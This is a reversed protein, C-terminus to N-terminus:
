RAIVLKQVVASGQHIARVTYVGSPLTNTSIPVSLSGLPANYQSIHVRNGTIDVIEIQVTTATSVSITAVLFEDTPNPWISMGLAPVAEQQVSTTSRQARGRLILVPNLTDMGVDFLVTDVHNVDEVGRPDYAVTFRYQELPGIAIPLSNALPNGSMTRADVFHRPPTFAGNSYSVVSVANSGLNEITVTHRSAPAAVDVIGYNVSGIVVTRNTAAFTLHALRLSGCELEAIISDSIEVPVSSLATVTLVVEEGPALPLPGSPSISVFSNSNRTRISQVALTKVTSSNRLTITQERPTGLPVWGFEIKSSSPELTPPVYTFVRETVTGNQEIVHLKSSAPISNDIVQFEFLSTRAILDANNTQTFKFNSEDTTFIMAVQGCMSNEYEARGIIKTCQETSSLVLPDACDKRLDIGAPTGYARGQNLGDLSGYSWAMFRVSDEASALFHSGQAIPHRIVSLDTGRVTRVNQSFVERLKKGDFYIDDFDRSRFVINVFCDMGEQTNVVGHSIWRDMSPVTTLFPMGAEVTPHGQADDVDKSGNNRVPPPLVKAYSKGYQGMLIPKTSEWYTATEVSTELRTEGKRLNWKNLLGSGDQRMTKVVTNDELAIVRIVDGRDDDIGIEPNGQGTVRNSTYLFPVTIFKTGAMEVPLMAEHVNNRLFHAPASFSGSIPLISPYRMMAGKTHGSVVAIPKTSVIRTGSLDTSFNKSEAINIKSKILTAQGRDLQMTFSTGKPISKTVFGGETDVTPTYTVFTSDAASIILIQSPRYDINQGSGFHDQYFNMSYYETGWAAIPLHQTMEGNGNWQQLTSVTVPMSSEVLLGTGVPRESETCMYATSIPIRVVEGPQTMKTIDIRPLDMAVAISRVRVTCANRSAVVLQMPNPLPKESSQAWVQPFSVVFSTGESIPSNTNSQAFAGVCGFMLLLAIPSVLRYWLVPM